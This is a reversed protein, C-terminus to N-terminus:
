ESKEKMMNWDPVYRSDAADPEQCFGNDRGLLLMYNVVQDYEEPTIRRSLEPHIEHGTPFYQAMLSVPVSKPLHDEIWDLVGLSNEVSGPLVLHRVLLGKQMIGNEDYVPAGVQRFMETIAEAAAQPYDAAESYKKATESRSYKYDPLYVDILGEMSKLTEAREYGGTNCVVPVAPKYRELARRIIPYYPTPSVLNINHVDQSELKKILEILGNEDVVTGCNKRSIASNQCYECRLVCGSFFITGSGNAGSIPPEEWFHKEARCVGPLAPLGCFGDGSGRAPRFAGCRRPCLRCAGIAADATM